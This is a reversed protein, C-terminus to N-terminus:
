SLALPARWHSYITGGGGRNAVPVARPTTEDLLTAYEAMAHEGTFVPNDTYKGSLLGKREWITGIGLVHGMEHLIVDELTGDEEMNALDYTDFEMMGRYPIDNSRLDLPTARGLTNGETDGGGDIWRGEASILIDDVITGDRLTVPPLDGTIVEAWRAAASHFFSRQNANLGGVFDLQIRFHSPAPCNNFRLEWRNLTGGDQSAQDEIRLTWVGSVRKGNFRSLEEEPRFEGRFPASSGTVSEAATDDFVTHDFGDGDGGESAVLVVATSDPGILTIKLDEDWTHDIDVLVALNEVVMAGLNGTDITSEVVNPPGTLISMRTNNDFVNYCTDITLSWRNLSGGDQPVNDKVILKWMGQADKNEFATLSEEPRFTGRFPAAAGQISQPAADDFVTRRFHDGRSGEGSVLLVHTGDPAEVHIELDSTYTHNLDVLVNVDRIGGPLGAVEIESTITTPQGADIPVVEFSTFEKKMKDFEKERSNELKQPM